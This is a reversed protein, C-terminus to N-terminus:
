ESFCRRWSGAGCVRYHRNRRESLWSRHAGPAISVKCWRQRATNEYISETDPQNCKLLKYRYGHMGWSHAIKSSCISAWMCFRLSSIIIGSCAPGCATNDNSTWKKCSIMSQLYRRWSLIKNFSKISAKFASSDTPLQWMCLSFIYAISMSNIRVIGHYTVDSFAATEVISPCHASNKSNMSSTTPPTRDRPILICNTDSRRVVTTM